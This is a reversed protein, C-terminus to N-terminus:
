QEAGQQAALRHAVWAGGLSKMGMGCVLAVSVASLIWIERTAPPVAWAAARAMLLALLAGAAIHLLEVLARM